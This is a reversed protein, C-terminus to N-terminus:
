GMKPKKGEKRTQDKKIPNGKGKMTDQNYKLMKSVDPGSKAKAMATEMSLRAKRGPENSM